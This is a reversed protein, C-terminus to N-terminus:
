NASFDTWGTTWAPQNPAFAGAYSAGEDFGPPPARGVDGVVATNSPVWGPSALNFPDPLGPDVGFANNTGAFFEAEDFGGDDDRGDGAMMETEEEVTPFFHDGSSGANFFVSSDVALRGARLNDVAVSGQVDISELGHGVFLANAVVGQTGDKLNIGRNGGTQGSGILTVNYIQPAAVPQAGSDSSSSAEFGNDGGSDQQIAVFQAAGRWGLDWDLSDDQARTIVLNRLNVTGGFVEVGDDKGQHVQVHDVITGSGCGALTLGNLEEDLKLAFGAFEVRVYELAGCSGDDDNGGFGARADSPVGELSPAAANTTADGLLALGGWDGPARMGAPQSSSFVIPAVETGRAEISAGREVVLASGQEGEIRTGAEVTLVVGPRVYVVTELLYTNTATWTQDTEIDAAVPVRDGDSPGLCISEGPECVFGAGFEAVCQNDDTCSEPATCLGSEVICESGGGFLVACESDEVCENRDDPDAGVCSSAMVAGLLAFASWSKIVTGLSHFLSLSSM